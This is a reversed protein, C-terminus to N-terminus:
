MSDDFVEDDSIVVKKKKDATKTDPDAARKKERKGSKGDASQVMEVFKKVSPHESDVDLPDRMNSSILEYWVNFHGGTQVLKLLDRLTKIPRVGGSSRPPSVIQEQVHLSFLTNAYPPLHLARPSHL